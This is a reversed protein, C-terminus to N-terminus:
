GIVIVLGGGGVTSLIPIRECNNLRSDFELSNSAKFGIVDEAADEVGTVCGDVEGLVCGVVAAGNCDLEVIWGVECDCGNLKETVEVGNRCITFAPECNRSGDIKSRNLLGEVVEVVGAFSKKRADAVLGAGM